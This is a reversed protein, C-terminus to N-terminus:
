KGAIDSNTLNVNDITVDFDLSVNHMYYQYHCTGICEPIFVETVDLWFCSSKTTMFKTINLPEM